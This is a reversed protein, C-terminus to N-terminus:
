DEESFIKEFEADDTSAAVRAVSRQEAAREMWMKALAPDARVGKGELYCRALLRQAEADGRNAAAAFWREAKAGDPSCGIGDRYFQGVRRQARANGTAAAALWLGFCETSADETRTEDLLLALEILAPVHGQAAAKRFWQEAASIDVAGVLGRHACDGMWTQAEVDGGEAAPAFWALAARYDPRDAAEALMLQALARQCAADGLRAAPELLGKISSLEVRGRSRAKEDRALRVAAATSGMAFARMLYASARQPAPVVYEGSSYLNVLLDAAYVCGNNAGDELLRLAGQLSRPTGRGQIMLLALNCLALGHGGQMARRFWQAANADDHLTSREDAYLLALYFAAQSNGALAAKQYWQRAEVPDQSVGKGQRHLSGLNYQAAVSGREAAVRLWQAASAYNQAVGVGKAYFGALASYAEPRAETGAKALWRAAEVLDRPAGRGRLYLEALLAAARQDGADAAQRLWSAAEVGDDDPRELLLQGLSRMAGLDGRSSARRLWTEATYPDPAGADGRWFALGLHYMAVTQGQMAARRLLKMAPKADGREADGRLRLQGLWYQAASNGAASALQLWATAAADDLAVGDNGYGGALLIGLGAQGTPDDQAAAARFYHEARQIDRPVGQGSALQHAIRSQADAVGADAARQNWKAAEALDQQVAFGHPFSAALTRGLGGATADEEGAQASAHGSAAPADDFAIGAAAPPEIFYILGLRAQSLAHGQEAACRYWHVADALNQVVGDASEYMRGLHFQAASHGSEALTRVAEFAGYSWAGTLEVLAAALRADPDRRRAFILRRLVSLM